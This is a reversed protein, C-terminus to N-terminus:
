GAVAELRNIMEARLDEPAEVVVADLFSLLTSSIEARSAYPIEIRDWEDGDPGVVGAEVVTGAHRLGLAAGARVLVTATHRPQPPELTRSLARIDTGDPVAYSGPKGTTAVDGVIRSLRFMRAESKDVDMGVVYWRGRSSVVGWPEVNRTSASGAGAKRYDFRVPRRALTAELMPAFSPEEAAIAPQVVDIAERDVVLGAAKFKMLAQSTASALGAHQWVRTALGVVAAEAPTLDIQPLEFADRKIRYGQEDDFFKDVHEIEIPIGLGRLEEKDREFMKEFADDSACNRYPEMVERLREKTIPARAVLLAITLNILRESKSATLVTEECATSSGSSASTTRGSRIRACCRASRRTM